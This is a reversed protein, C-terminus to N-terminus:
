PRGEGLYRRNLEKLTENEEELQQRWKREKVLERELRLIREQWDHGGVADEAFPTEDPLKSLDLDTRVRTLEAERRHHNILATYDIGVAEAFAVLYELKTYGNKGRRFRSFTSDDMEMRSRIETISM